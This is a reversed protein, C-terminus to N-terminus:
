VTGVSKMRLQVSIIILTWLIVVHHLGQRLSESAKQLNSMLHVFSQRGRAKDELSLKDFILAIHNLSSLSHADAEPVRGRTVM